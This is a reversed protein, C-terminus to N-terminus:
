DQKYTVGFSINLYMQILNPILYLPLMFFFCAFFPSWILMKIGRQTTELQVAICVCDDLLLDIFSTQQRNLPTKSHTKHKTNKPHHSM